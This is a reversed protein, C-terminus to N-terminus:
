VFAGFLGEDHSLNEEAIKSYLVLNYPVFLRVVSCIIVYM